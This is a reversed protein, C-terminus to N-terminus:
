QAAVRQAQALTMGWYAVVGVYSDYHGSQPGDYLAIVGSEETLTTNRPASFTWGQGPTTRTADVGRLVLGNASDGPFPPLTSSPSQWAPFRKQLYSGDPYKIKTSIYWVRQGGHEASYVRTRDPQHHSRQSDPPTIEIRETPVNQETGLPVSFSTLREAGGADQVGAFVQGPRRTVGSVSVAGQDVVAPWIETARGAAVLRVRSGDGDVQFTRDRGLRSSLRETIAEIDGSSYGGEQLLERLFSPDRVNTFKLGGERSVQGIEAADYVINGDVINIERRLDLYRIMGNQPNKLGIAHGAFAGRTVFSLDGEPIPILKKLDKDLMLFLGQVDGQNVRYFRMRSVDGSLRGNLEPDLTLGEGAPWDGPPPAGTTPNQNPPLGPKIEFQNTEPNYAMDYWKGGINGMSSAEVPVARGDQMKVTDATWSPRLDLANFKPDDLKALEEKTFGVNGGGGRFGQGGLYFEQDNAEVIYGNRRIKEAAQRALASAQLSGIAQDGSKLTVGFDSGNPSVTLSYSGGPMTFSVPQGVSAHLPVNWAHVDRENTLDAVVLTPTIQGDEGKLYVYNVALTRGKFQFVNADGIKGYLEAVNWHAREFDSRSSSGPDTSDRGEDSRPPPPANGTEARMIIKDILSDKGSETASQNDRLDQLFKEFTLGPTAEQAQEFESKLAARTEDNGAATVLLALVRQNGPSNDDLFAKVAEKSITGPLQAEFRPDSLYAAVAARKKEANPGTATFIDGLVTYAQGFGGNAADAASIDELFTVPSYEAARVEADSAPAVSDDAFVPLVPWPLALLASLALRLPQLSTKM